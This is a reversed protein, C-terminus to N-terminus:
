GRLSPPASIEVENSRRARALHLVFRAGADDQPEYAIDGGLTITMQRVLALGLGAHEITALSSRMPAFLHPVVNPPVGPGDDAVVIEIRDGDITASISIRPGGYRRANALLNTFIQSLLLSDAHVEISPDVDIEIPLNDDTGPGIAAVAEDVADALVLDQMEVEFRDDELQSLELLRSAMLQLRDAQTALRSLRASLTPADSREAELALASAM